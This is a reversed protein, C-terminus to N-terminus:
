SLRGRAAPVPTSSESIRRYLTSMVYDKSPGDVAWCSRWHDHHFEYSVHYRDDGCAHEAEPRTSLFDHFPRGDAFRVEVRDGGPFRWLSRREASYDAGCFRLVGNERCSLGEGDPEFVAEGWFEGIVGETVNEIIRVMQWRGRFYRETAEEM